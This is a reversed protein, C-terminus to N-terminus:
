IKFNIGALIVDTPRKESEMIVSFRLLGQIDGFSKSITAGLRWDNFQDLKPEYFLEQYIAVHKILKLRKRYRM